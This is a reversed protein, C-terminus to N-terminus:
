CKWAENGFVALLAETFWKMRDCQSSLTRWEAIMRMVPWVFLCWPTILRKHLSFQALTPPHVKHEALLRLPPPVSLHQSTAYGCHFFFLVKSPTLAHVFEGDWGIRSTSLLYMLQHLHISYMCRVLLLWSWLHLFMEVMFLQPDYLQWSERQRGEV